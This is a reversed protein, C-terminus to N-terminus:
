GAANVLDLEEQTDIDAFISEDSIPVEWVNAAYEKLITKAGTDGTLKQMAPFYRRSWLVPNGRRGDKVPMVIDRELVPDFEAILENIQSKTVFPMDGLLVIAGDVEDSLSAIGIKVSSAIGSNYDPNHVFKLNRGALLTELAESEHGTVLTISEVNSALAANAVSVVMPVGKVQSLLKNQEGMRRSSGAALIIAAIRPKSQHKPQVARRHRRESHAVDKILGGVGMAMIHEPKVEIGALIRQLVWDLGNLKPSRSCGPLNIINTKGLKALLLMNGPEVPMGFQVIEGGCEKIATPIVDGIDVTIGAGCVMIPNCGQTLAQKLAASIEDIKHECRQHFVVQSDYARMRGQTVEFTSDLVSEKLAASKTLILAGHHPQFPMVEIAPKEDALINLCHELLRESVAFPIIKISAVAQDAHAEASNPLTAIAIAGDSLNIANIKASDIQTLGHQKAYLNCRGAIPKGINLHLGALQKAIQEAATDEDVDGPELRVGTVFEVKAQELLLLHEANLETGKKLTVADLRLTHALIVGLAEVRKYQAFIM